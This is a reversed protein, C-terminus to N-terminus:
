ESSEPRGALTASLNRSCASCLMPRACIAAAKERVSEMAQELEARPIRIVDAEDRRERELRAILLTATAADRNCRQALSADGNAQAITLGESAHRLLARAIEVTSASPDIAAAALDGPPAAHLEVPPAAAVYKAVTPASIGFRRAIARHSMGSRALRVVEARQEEGLACPTRSM